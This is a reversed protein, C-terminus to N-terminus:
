AQRRKNPFVGTFGGRIAEIFSCRKSLRSGMVQSLRNKLRINISFLLSIETFTHSLLCVRRELYARPNFSNALNRLIMCSTLSFFDQNLTQNTWCKWKRRHNTYSIWINRYLQHSICVWIRRDSQHACCVVRCALM